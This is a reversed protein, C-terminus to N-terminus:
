HRAVPVTDPRHVFTRALQSTAALTVPSYRTRWIEIRVTDVPRGHRREREVIRRALRGLQRGGPQVAAREALDLLSPAITIEESREPATIFARVRRNGADDTTSFMGFGGGKWASLGVRKTLSVQVCAVVVLVVAPFAAM